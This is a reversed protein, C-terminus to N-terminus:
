VLIFPLLLMGAYESFDGRAYLDSRPYPGLLLATGALTGALAGFRDRVLRFVGAYGLVAFCWLAAGIAAAPSLVTAFASAAYFFGPQYYGFYPSGLGQRFDSAWQPFPHGSALVDAFEVLRYVYSYAEHTLHMQGPEYTFFSYCLCAALLAGWLGPAMRRFVVAASRTERVAGAGERASLGVSRAVGVLASRLAQSAYDYTDPRTELPHRATSPEDAVSPWPRPGMASYPSRNKRLPVSRMWTRSQPLCAAGGSTM